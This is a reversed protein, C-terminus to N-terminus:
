LTVVMDSVYEEGTRHTVLVVQRGHAKLAGALAAANEDNLESSPEDLVLFGLGQPLITDMALHMGVGSIAQMGGSASLMSDEEGDETIAFDGKDNRSVETAYGDTADAIFRSTVALVGEWTEALFKEKSEVLWKRLAGFRMARREFHARDAAQKEAEELQRAVRQEDGTAVAYAERGQQLEAVAAAVDAELQVVRARLPVLDVAQGTPLAAVQDELAKLRLELTRLREAHGQATTLAASAAELSALAARYAAAHREVEEPTAETLTPLLAALETLRAANANYTEEYGAPPQLPRLREVEATAAQFRSRAVDQAKQATDVRAQAEAAAERAAELHAGELPRKCEGCISASLAQQAKKAAAELDQKVSLASMHAVKLDQATAVAAAYPEVNPELSEWHAGTTAFWSQLQDHDRKTSAYKQGSVTLSNQAEVAEDYSKRAGAKSATLGEVLRAKPGLEEIEEKVNRQADLLRVAEAAAGNIKEGEVVKERVQTLEAQAADYRARISTGVARLRKEEARHGALATRLAELDPAPGYAEAAASSIKVIDSARGIMREIHDADALEEIMRNLKTAGLTLLAATQSQRAYGLQMAQEQGVHLLSEEVWKNVATHGTALIKPEDGTTRVQATTLTRVVEFVAGAHDAIVLLVSAKKGGRRTIREKKGPVATAGFLAFWIAHLITSKGAWNPGRIVTLSDSFEIHLDEHRKFDKLTVSKLTAM